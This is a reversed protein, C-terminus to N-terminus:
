VADSRGFPCLTSTPRDLVKLNQISGSCPCKWRAECSQTRLGSWIAAPRRRNNLLAGCTARSGRSPDRVLRALSLPLETMGACWNGSGLFEGPRTATNNGSIWRSRILTALPFVRHLAFLQLRQRGGGMFGLLHRIQSSRDCAEWM